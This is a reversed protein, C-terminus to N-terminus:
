KLSCFGGRVAIMQAPKKNEVKKNEVTKIFAWALLTFILFAVMMAPLVFSLLEVVGNSYQLMAKAGYFLLLFSIVFVPIIVGIAYWTYTFGTYLAVALLLLGVIFRARTKTFFSM